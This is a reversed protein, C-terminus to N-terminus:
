YGCEDESVFLTQSGEKEGPEVVAIHKSDGDRVGAVALLVERVASAHM